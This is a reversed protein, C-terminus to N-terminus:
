AFQFSDYVMTSFPFGHNKLPKLPSLDIFLRSKADPAHM